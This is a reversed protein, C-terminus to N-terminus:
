SSATEAAVPGLLRQLERLIIERDTASMQNPVPVAMVDQGDIAFVSAAMAARSRVVDRTADDFWGSADENQGPRQSPSLSMVIADLIKPGGFYAFHRYVFGRQATTM